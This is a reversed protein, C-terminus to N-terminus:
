PNLPMVWIWQIASQNNGGLFNDWVATGSYMGNQAFPAAGQSPEDIIKEHRIYYPYLTGYMSYWGLKLDMPGSWCPQDVSQMNQMVTRKVSGIVQQQTPCNAWILMKLDGAFSARDIAIIICLVTAFTVIRNHIQM